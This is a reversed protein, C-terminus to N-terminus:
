QAGDEIWKKIAAIEDAKLAAYGDNEPPMRKHDTREVAIVLGSEEPNGPLVLELPSDLLEQRTLLVQWASNGASHCTVCKPIFVNKNISEYTPQVPEPLQPEDGPKQAQLPGGLEIWNWLLRNEEDTLFNKKPMTQSIFVSNKIEPLAKLVDAYTELSVGGSNGHCSTCKPVLVNQNILNYSLKLKEEAPLSMQENLDSNLDGPITVRSYRCGSAMFILFAFSSIRKM